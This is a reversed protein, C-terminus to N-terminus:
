VHARGIDLPLGVKLMVYGLIGFVLMILVDFISNSIYYAGLVCFVAIIPMLIVEPIKLLKPFLRSAGLEVILMFINALILATFIGYILSADETFLTPGPSYGQIMLAGLLVATIVDGPIGLTLLPVLECCTVVM